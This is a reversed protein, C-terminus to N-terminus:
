CYNPSIRENNSIKETGKEREEGLIRMICINCLKYTDWLEKINEEQQNKKWAKTEEIELKIPKQESIRLSLSEKRLQTCEVLGMLLM